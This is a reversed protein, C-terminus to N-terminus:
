TGDAWTDWHRIFLKDYFRGTSKSKQDMRAKTAAPDEADPFVAMSVLIRRGDPAIRFSDVDLPLNTIQRPAGSRCSPCIEWVQGKALYYVSTSSSGWRPNSGETLKAPAGKGDTSVLWIAHSRKTGEPNLVALDYAVWKGDPSVHPDSVRDLSVLDKQTLPRAQVGSAALALIACASALLPRIM